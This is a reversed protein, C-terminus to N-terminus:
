TLCVSQSNIQTSQNIKVCVCMCDNVVVFVIETLRFLLLQYVINMQQQNWYSEM